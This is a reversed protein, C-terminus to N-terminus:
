EQRGFYKKDEILGLVVHHNKERLYNNPDYEMIRFYVIENERVFKVRYNALKNTELQFNAIFYGYYGQRGYRTKSEQGAETIDERQRHQIVGQLECVTNWQEKLNGVKDKTIINGIEDKIVHQPEIQETYQQKQQLYYEQDNRKLVRAYLTEFSM